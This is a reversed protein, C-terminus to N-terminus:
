DSVASLNKEEDLSNQKEVAERAVILADVADFLSRFNSYDNQGSLASPKASMGERWKVASECVAWELRSIETDTM